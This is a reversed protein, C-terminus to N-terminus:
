ELWYAQVCRPALEVRVCGDASVAAGPSLMERIRGGWEFPLEISAEVPKDTLSQVLMWRRAGDSLVDVRVDGYPAAKPRAEPGCAEVLGTILDACGAEGTVAYAAGLLTGIMTATGKGYRARTIGPEGTPLCALVEVERGEV